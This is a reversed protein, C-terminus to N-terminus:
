DFLISNLFDRLVWESCRPRPSRSAWWPCKSRSSCLTLGGRRTARGIVVKDLTRLTSGRGARGTGGSPDAAVRHRPERQGAASTSSAAARCCSRWVRRWSPGRVATARSRRRGFSRSSAPTRRSCTACSRRRSRTTSSSARSPWMRAATASGRVTLDYFLKGAGCCSARPRAPRCSRRAGRPFPRGRARRDTLRGAPQCISKAHVRGAPPPLAAGVPAQARQFYQRAHQPWCVQLNGRRLAALYREIYRKSHEPGAGRLRATAADVLASAREGSALRRPWSNISIVQRRQRLRRVAAEWPHAHVTGRAFLRVRLGARGGGVAHSNPRLFRAPGPRHTRAPQVVSPRPTRGCRTVSPSPHGRRQGPGSLRVPVGGLLCIDRVCAEAFPWDITGHEEVPGCDTPCCGPWRPAQALATRCPARAGRWAYCIATRCRTRGARPLITPRAGGVSEPLAPEGTGARRDSANSPTRSAVSSPRPVASARGTSLVGDTVLRTAYQAACRRRHRIKRYLVAPSRRRARGRQARSAPIACSTQGGRRPGCRAFPLPSTQWM